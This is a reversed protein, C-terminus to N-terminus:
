AVGRRGMTPLERSRRAHLEAAAEGLVAWLGELGADNLRVTVPGLHISVCSCDTCRQVHAVGNHALTEHRCAKPNSLADGRELVYIRIIRTKLITTERTRPAAKPLGRPRPARSPPHRAPATLAPASRAGRRLTLWSGGAHRSGARERAFNAGSMAKGPPAKFGHAERAYM